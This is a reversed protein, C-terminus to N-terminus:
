KTYKLLDKINTKIVEDSVSALLPLKPRYAIGVGSIKVPCLDSTSDGVYIIDTIKINFKESLYIIANSKCVPHNCLSKPSNIFYSPILVEGNFNNGSVGLQNSLSFDMGIKKRITETIIDFNDSLIGTLYSRSKLEKVLDIMENSIKISNIFNVLDNIDIGKLLQAILKKQITYDDTKSIIELYQSLLNKQTFFDKLIDQEVIVDNLNYIIMKKLNLMSSQVVEIMENQIINLSQLGDFDLLNREAARKLIAKAVESSMKGLQQWPKSKNDIKGIPVEKIKAELNYVDILIGIDVGYDNEFNVKQLIEKKGAIMGSLPQSFITLHSFLLGLLPKAVLETVRGAERDFTSKVFDYGEYLIPYVLKEVIDEQYNRIDGDLYVLIPYKAYLLGEKMSYGKGRVASIYVKAGHKEAEKVTNDESRDDIVIVEGTYKSKKVLEIVGGITQEENLVPIIVSVKELKKFRSFFNEIRKFLNM